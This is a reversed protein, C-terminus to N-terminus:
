VKRFSPVAIVIIACVLQYILVASPLVSSYGGILAFYLSAAFGLVIGITQLVVGLMISFKLRKAGFLACALGALSNRHALM